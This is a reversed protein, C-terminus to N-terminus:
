LVGAKCQSISRIDAVTWPLRGVSVLPVPSPLCVLLFVKYFKFTFRIVAALKQLEFYAPIACPEQCGSSLNPIALQHRSPSPRSNWKHVPSCLARPKGDSPQFRRWMGKSLLLLDTNSWGWNKRCSVVLEVLLHPLYPLQLHPVSHSPALYERWQSLNIYKAACFGIKNKIVKRKM